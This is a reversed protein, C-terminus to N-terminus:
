ENQFLIIKSKAVEKMINTSGKMLSLIEVKNQQKENLQNRLYNLAANRLDTNVNFKVIGAEISRKILDSSLGSAGHLVLSPRKSKTLKELQQNIQDLRNFDLNPPHYYKGHVNGITVALLDINTEEIYHNVTLPDTMKMEKLDVSLGDEEGALKGLEAEVFLGADHAATAWKKTFILNEDFALSSGDIMISDFSLSKSLSHKVVAELVQEIEKENQFHDFHLYIPVKASAKLASLYSLFPIGGYQFSVPHVQIMIPRKLEEAAEVVAKAGEMNYINFAAIAQKRGRMEELTKLLKDQKLSDHDNTVTNSHLVKSKKYEVGLQSAVRCLALDDGVNGPFVIYLLDQFKEAKISKSDYSEKDVQWVPVGKEIQGLVKASRVSLGYQAVEHSTIGGKAILFSPKKELYAILQTMFYSIFKLDILESNKIFTRSTYIVLDKGNSSNNSKNNNKNFLTSNIRHLYSQFLSAISKEAINNNSTKPHLLSDFFREYSLSNTTITHQSKVPSFLSLLEAVNIELTQLNMDEILHSLQKSSKPVYSGVVIVGGDRSKDTVKPSSIPIVGDVTKQRDDYSLLPRPSLGTRSAVFSAASRGIFQKKGAAEAKLMGLTFVNLDDENAANVVIYSFSSTSTATLLKDRIFDAGKERIDNLTITIISDKSIKGHSKEFIWDVLNSATYPFHPDKAFDTEGVPILEKKDNRYYHTDNLTYRGGEFFTPCLVLGDYTGFITKIQRSGSVKQQKIFSLIANVEDPFHGRLTSDSRSILRINKQYNIEEIASSLNSLVHNITNQCEESTMSRTNVLIYFLKLNSQLLQKKLSEKSYDLVVNIDYLTQCGTPDDDLVIITQNQDTLKLQDRILKWTDKEHKFSFLGILHDQNNTAATVSFERPRLSRTSRKIEDYSIAPICSNLVPFSLGFSRSIPKNSLQVKRLLQVSLRSFLRM